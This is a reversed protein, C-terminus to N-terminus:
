SLALQAATLGETACAIPTYEDEVPRATRKRAPLQGLPDTACVDVISLSL